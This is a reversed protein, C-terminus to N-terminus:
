KILNIIRNDSMLIEFEANSVNATSHRKKNLFCNDIIETILIDGKYLMGKEVPLLDVKFKVFVREDKDYVIGSCVLENITSNILLRNM